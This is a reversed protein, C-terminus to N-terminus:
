QLIKVASDKKLGLADYIQKSLDSMKSPMKYLTNTSKDKIFSSQISTLEERLVEPSINIKNNKLIKDAYKTLCLALYCLAVHGRIRSSKYHYIPRM